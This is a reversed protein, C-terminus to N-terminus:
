KRENHQRMATLQAHAARVVNESTFGYHEAAVKGPASLGFTRSAHGYGPHGTCRGGVQRFHKLDCMTITGSGHPEYDPRTAWEGDRMPIRASAQQRTAKGAHYDAFFMGQVYLNRREFPLLYLSITYGRKM